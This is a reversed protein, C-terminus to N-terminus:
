VCRATMILDGFEDIIIVIYPMFRHGKEPNLQRSIFKANYETQEQRQSNEDPHQCYVPTHSKRNQKSRRQSHNRHEEKHFIIVALICGVHRCIVMDVVNNDLIYLANLLQTYSVPM